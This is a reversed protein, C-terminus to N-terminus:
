VLKSNILLADNGFYDKTQILNNITNIAHIVTSHDCNLPTGIDRFSLRTNKRMLWCYIQRSKVVERIRTKSKVVEVPIGYYNSVSSMCLDSMQTATLHTRCKVRQEYQLITNYWYGHTLKTM